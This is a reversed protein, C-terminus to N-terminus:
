FLPSANFLVLHGVLMPKFAEYLYPMLKFNYLPMFAILQM